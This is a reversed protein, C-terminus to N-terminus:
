AVEIGPDPPMCLYCDGEASVTYAYMASLIADYDLAFIDVGQKLLEAWRPLEPADLFETRIAHILRSFCRYQTHLKRCTQGTLDGTRIVYPCPGSVGAAGRQAFWERLEQPSLQRQQQRQGGGLGGRQSTGGRGGGNGGGGSGSYGGSGGGSGGSGGGSGGGVGGGGGGSGRGDGGGGGGGGGGGRRWRQRGWRGQRGQGQRQPAAVISTEAALLHKELLDVTLTTPDVALLLDQVASLSDPLRTVIFYLTIYM